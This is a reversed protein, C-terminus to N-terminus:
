CLADQLYFRWKACQKQLDTTGSALKPRKTNGSHLMPWLHNTEQLLQPLPLLFFTFDSLCIAIATKEKKETNNFVTNKTVNSLVASNKM